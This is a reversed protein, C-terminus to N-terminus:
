IFHSPPPDSQAGTCVIRPDVAAVLCSATVSSSCKPPGRRRGCLPWVWVRETRSERKHTHTERERERQEETTQTRTNTHRETHQQQKRPPPPPPPPPFSFVTTRVDHLTTLLILFAPASCDVNAWQGGITLDGGTHHLEQGTHPNDTLQDDGADLALVARVRAGPAPKGHHFVFGWQVGAVEDKGTTSIKAIVCVIDKTDVEFGGLRGYIGSRAFKLVQHM